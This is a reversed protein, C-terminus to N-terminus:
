VGRIDGWIIKHIQPIVRINLNDQLVLDVLEELSSGYVPQFIVEANFNNKIVINKAYEYDILDKIVFKIQDKIQLDNLLNLNTKKEMGSGPCKCDMSILVNPDNFIPMPKIHGATELLIKYNDELLRKTLAVLGEKQHLPEGGTICVNECKLKEIKSILQNVSYEKYDDGKVAYMSDCWACRLSCGFLRVFVTPIGIQLGEGQLSYFIENIKLKM